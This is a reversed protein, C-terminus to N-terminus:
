VPRATTGDSQAPVRGALPDFEALLLALDDGLDGGVRSHLDQLVRDLVTSAAGSSLAAVAEGADVFRGQVDRAEILGDTFMLLRDGPALQATVAEPAAGLGLPPTGPTGLERTVDNSMLYAPPHGCCVVTCLGDDTIEAVIATVFDEEGLYPTLRADIQQALDVLSEREVAAARFEGLVVTALRVAGLGKGRVDGVLLRCGGPRPVVEYLDGGVLADRAASVYAAALRLSGVREPVPALIARQAAEAVRTIAALRGSQQRFAAANEVAVAMRGALDEAFGLDEDSFHKGSEATVMTIAGLTGSRGILPVILVSTMGIRRLLELHESDIAGGVLMEDTIVPFLQSRGDKIVEGLGGPRDLRPPYRREVEEAFRTKAPDVHTVAVTRLEGDELLVVSCWDALRPVVLRAVNTLTARYDLTSALEASAAALFALKGASVRAEALARARDVAQACTEVLTSLFQVDRLEGVEDGAAFSLSIVGITRDGGLIMPLCVLPRDGTTQGALAPFRQDLEAGTHVIVPARTLVAVGAPTSDNVRYRHWGPATRPGFALVELTEDDVLLSVSANVAGLADAVHTVIVEGVREVDSVATLESTVRQLRALRAAYDEASARAVREAVHLRSRDLAQATQAALAAIFRREDEDYLHPSDFSFRLVGVVTSGVLMPFTCISAASPELEQLAPFREDRDERSEVWVPEGTAIAETIPLRDALGSRVQEVVAVPHGVAAPIELGGDPRVLILGGRDAGLVTVGESVAVAAVDEPTTAGALAAAVAHLRAARDSARQAAAVVALEDLLRRELTVPPPAPEGAAAHRLQQM